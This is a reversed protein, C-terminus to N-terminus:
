IIGLTLNGCHLLDNVWSVTKRIDEPDTDTEELDLQILQLIVHENPAEMVAYTLSTRTQYPFDVDPGDTNRFILNMSM